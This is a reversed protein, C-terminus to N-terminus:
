QRYILPRQIDTEQFWNAQPMILPTKNSINLSNIHNIQPTIPATPNVLNTSGVGFLFSEVDCSNTSLVDRGMRPMIIFDGAFLTRDPVVSKKYLTFHDMYQNGAVQLKYEYLSNKNNTSAM